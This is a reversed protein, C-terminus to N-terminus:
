PGAIACATRCLGDPGRWCGAPCFQFWPSCFGRGFFQATVATKEIGGAQIYSRRHKTDKRYLSTEATFGQLRM